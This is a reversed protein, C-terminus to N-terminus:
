VTFHKLQLRQLVQIGSPATAHGLRGGQPPAAAAVVSHVPRQQRVDGVVPGMHVGPGEEELIARFTPSNQPQYAPLTDPKLHIPNSLQSASRPSPMMHQAASRPSPQM